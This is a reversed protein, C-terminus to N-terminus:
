RLRVLLAGGVIAQMLDRNEVKALEAKGEQVKKGFMKSFFGM